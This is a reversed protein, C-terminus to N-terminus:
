GIKKDSQAAYQGVEDIVFAVAYGPWRRAALQFTREVVTEATITNSQSRLSKSWSDAQPFIDPQMQHLIASAYNLKKAGKRAIRWEVGNVQPCLAIFQELRGEAELEIELEAIDYDLAYGLESLLARYIVEAIKEDGRRVESSKSIDFMIVKTPIRSNISDLLAHIAEDAVQAKFLQSAPQGLVPQNGLVYGMNKVFSSKGSGFFGSVWVGVGEHPDQPADAIARLLGRYEMKLRDTAIYETLETYVAHEDTQDVKIIEEIQQSLDRVLLDAITQM